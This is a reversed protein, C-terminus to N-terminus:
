DDAPKALESLAPMLEATLAFGRDRAALLCPASAADAGAMMRAGAAHVLDGFTTLPAERAPPRETAAATRTAPPSQGPPAQTAPAGGCASLLGLIVGTRLASMARLM